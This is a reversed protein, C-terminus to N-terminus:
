ELHDIVSQKGFSWRLATALHAIYKEREAVPKRAIYAPHHVLLLAIQETHSIVEPLMKSWPIWNSDAWRLLWQRADTGLGIVLKPRVAALERLLYESCNEIELPRSPRNNPPHCHVVNTIFVQNKRLGAADLARDLLRGSGGTFPIQAEMCPKCLSQGVIIVPSSPSGYGPAAQTVGPENLGPCRQCARIQKVLAAIEIIINDSV